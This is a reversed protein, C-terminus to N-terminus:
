PEEKGRCRSQQEPNCAREPDTLYEALSGPDAECPLIWGCNRCQYRDLEGAGGDSAAGADVYDIDGGEHVERIETVYVVDRMVEELRRDGCKPCQFREAVLCPRTAEEQSHGGQIATSALVQCCYRKGAYDFEWLGDLRDSVESLDLEQGEPSLLFAETWCPSTAPSSACVRVACRLGDNFRVERDFLVEGKGIDRPNECCLSNMDALVAPDVQLTAILTTGRERGGSTPGIMREFDDRDLRYDEYPMDELRTASVEVECYAGNATWIARILRHALEQETLVACLNGTASAQFATLDDPHGYPEWDDADFPWEAEAAEKIETARAPNAGQVSIGISYYLGM